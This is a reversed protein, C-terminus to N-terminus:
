FTTDLVKNRYRTVKLAIFVATYTVIVFQFGAVALTFKCLYTNYFLFIFFLECM